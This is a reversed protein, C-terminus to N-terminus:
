SIVSISSIDDVLGYNNLYYTYTVNASKYISFQTLIDMLAGAKAELYNKYNGARESKGVFYIINESSQPIQQVWYPIPRETNGKAMVFQLVCCATIFSIVIKKKM